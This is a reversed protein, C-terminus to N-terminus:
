KFPKPGRGKYPEARGTTVLWDNLNEGDRYVEVLWRGYKDRKLIDLQVTEGMKATMDDRVQKGQATHLEPTDIGNLRFSDTVSVGMGLDVRGRFTDGDHVSLVTANSRIPPTSLLTPQELTACGGLALLIILPIIKM